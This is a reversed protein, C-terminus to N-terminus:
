KTKSVLYTTRSNCESFYVRTRSTKSNVSLCQARGFLFGEKNM